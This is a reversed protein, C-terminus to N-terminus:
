KVDEGGLLKQKLEKEKDLLEHFLIWDVIVYHKDNKYGNKLASKITGKFSKKLNDQIKNIGMGNEDIVKEIELSLKEKGANYM